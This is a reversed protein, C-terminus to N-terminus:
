QSDTGQTWIDSDPNPLDFGRQGRQPKRRTESSSVGAQAEDLKEGFRETRFLTAPKFWFWEGSRKSEAAKWEVVLIMDEASYGKKVLTRIQKVYTKPDFGRKSGPRIENVRGIVRQAIELIEGESDKTTNKREKKKQDALPTGPKKDIIETPPHKESHPYNSSSQRVVSADSVCAQRVSSARSVVDGSTYALKVLWRIMDGRNRDHRQQLAKLMEHESSSMRVTFRVDRPM